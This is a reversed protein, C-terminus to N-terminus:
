NAGADVYASIPIRLRRAGARLEIFDQLRGVPLMRQATATLEYSRGGPAHRLAIAFLANPRRLPRLEAARQAHVRITARASARSRPGIFGLYLREPRAEFDGPVTALVRIAIEPQGPQNTRVLVSGRFPGPAALGPLLQVSVQRYLANPPVTQVRAKLASATSRCGVLEFGKPPYVFRVTRRLPLAADADGFDIRDPVASVPAAVLWSLRLTIHRLAPDNTKVEATREMPGLAYPTSTKVMIARSEGPRIHPSGQLSATVSCCGAVDLVDFVRRGRNALHFRYQVPVTQALVGFDHRTEEMVLGTQRVAPRAPAFRTGISLLMGIGGLLLLPHRFVAGAPLHPAAPAVGAGSGDRDMAGQEM